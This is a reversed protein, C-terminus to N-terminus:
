YYLDYAVYFGARNTAYLILGNIAYVYWKRKPGLITFRYSFGLIPLNRSLSKLPHQADTFGVLLSKSLPFRARTDNPYDVYKNLWSIDPDWFQDNAGPHRDKFSGYHFLLVDRTGESVGGLFSAVFPAWNEQGFCTITSM